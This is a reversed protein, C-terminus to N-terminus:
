RWSPTTTSRPGRGCGACRPTCRGSPVSCSCRRTSSTAASTTSCAASTRPTAPSAGTARRARGALARVEVRVPPRHGPPRGRRGSAARPLRRGLPPEPLRDAAGRGREADDRLARAEASPVACRSTWSSPCAPRSPQARWRSIRGTLPPSSSSTTARRRAVLRGGGLPARDDVPQGGDGADARTGPGQDRRRRPQLGDVLRILPAHFHRGALGYGM